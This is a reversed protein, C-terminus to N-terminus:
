LSSCPFVALFHNDAANGDHVNPFYQNASLIYVAPNTENGISDPGFRAVVKLYIATNKSNQKSCTNDVEMLVIRRVLANALAVIEPGGGWVRANRMNELYENSTIGYQNAALKVLESALISEDKQMILKKSHSISHALIDVAQNRLKRSLNQVQSMTPHQNAGNKLSQNYLIGAAISLFLCSGNGPVQRITVPVPEAQESLKAYYKGSLFWDADEGRIMSPTSSNIESYLLMLRVTLSVIAWRSLDVSISHGFFRKLLPATRLLSLLIGILVVEISVRKTFQLLRQKLSLDSTVFVSRPLGGRRIGLSTLPGRSINHTSINTQLIREVPSISAVRADCASFGISSQPNLVFCALAISNSRRIM